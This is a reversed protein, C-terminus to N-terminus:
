LMASKRFHAIPTINADRIVNADQFATYYYSGAPYSIQTSVVESVYFSIMSATLFASNYKTKIAPHSSANRSAMHLKTSLLM